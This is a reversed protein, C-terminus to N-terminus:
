SKKIVSNGRFKSNRSPETETVSTVKNIAAELISFSRFKECKDQVFKIRRRTDPTPLTLRELSRSSNLARIAREPDIEHKKVDSTLMKSDSQQSMQSQQSGSLISALSIDDRDDQSLSAPKGKETIRRKISPLQTGTKGDFKEAINMMKMMQRREQHYSLPAKEERLAPDVSKVEELAEQVSKKFSPLSAQISQAISHVSTLGSLISSGGASSNEGM